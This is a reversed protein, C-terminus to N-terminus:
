NTSAAKTESASTRDLPKVSEDNSDVSSLSEEGVFIAKAAAAAADKKAKDKCGCALAQNPTAIIMITAILVLKM